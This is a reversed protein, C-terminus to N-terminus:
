PKRVCDEHKDLVQAYWEQDLVPRLFVQVTRRRRAQPLDNLSTEAEVKIPPLDEGCTPCGLSISGVKAM